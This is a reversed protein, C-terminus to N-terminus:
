NLVPVFKGQRIMTWNVVLCFLHWANSQTVVQGVASQQTVRCECVIHVDSTGEHVETVAIIKVYGVYAGNEWINLIKYYERASTHLGV